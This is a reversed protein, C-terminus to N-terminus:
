NPLGNEKRLVNITGNVGSLRVIFANDKKGYGKTKNLALKIYRATIGKDIRAEGNPNFQIFKNFRLGAADTGFGRVLRRVMAINSASPLQDTTTSPATANITDDMSFQSLILPMNMAPWKKVDSMDAATDADLTGDASFIPLMVVTDAVEDSICLRVYTQNAMAHSRALEVTRALDESAKNVTGAGSLSRIAPGTLASMTLVIGIVVILEALTFGASSARRAQARNFPRATSTANRNESRQLIRSSIGAKIWHHLFLM